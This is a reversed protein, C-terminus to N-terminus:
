YNLTINHSKYRTQQICNKIKKNVEVRLFGLNFNNQICKDKHSLWYKFNKKTFLLDDECYIFIDYDNRQTEM